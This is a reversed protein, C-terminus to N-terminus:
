ESEVAYIEATGEGRLRISYRNGNCLTILRRKTDRNGSLIHTQATTGSLINDAFASVSESANVDYKTWRPFHRRTQLVFEKSEVEWSIYAGGDTAEGYDELKWLKGDSTVALLQDNTHDNVVSVFQTAYKYYSVRKVESDFVVVNSPYTDNLGPYGFYLSDHYWALWAASMDGVGDMGNFNGSWLPELIDTISTDRSIISDTGPIMLYVADQGTHFIGQGDVPLLGAFSQAGTKAAQTYPKYDSAQSGGIYYGQRKDFVYPSNNFFCGGVLPYQPISVDIYYTAPWYEPQQPKSFYLKHEVCIFLTGNNTPGFVPGGSPPRDHDTQVVVSLSADATTDEISIDDTWVSIFYINDARSTLRIQPDNFEYQSGFEEWAYTDFSGNTTDEVTFIYAVGDFYGGEAEWDYTVAYDRNVYNIDQSFYYTAGADTTRYIRICNVQEDTPATVEIALADDTLTVADEAAPSPNSECVIVDGEKRAYTYKANYAGTLGPASGVALVPPVTPADIGWEYGYAGEYRKRYTGNIAFVCQTESNFPIYAVASWTM